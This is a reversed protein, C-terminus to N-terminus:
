KFLTLYEHIIEGGNSSKPIHQSVDIYGAHKKQQVYIEDHRLNWHKHKELETLYVGILDSTYTYIVCYEKKNDNILCTALPM